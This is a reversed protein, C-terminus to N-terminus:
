EEFQRYEEVTFDDDLILRGLGYECWNSVV